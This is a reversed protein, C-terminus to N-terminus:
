PKETEGAEVILGPFMRVASMDNAIQIAGDLSADDVVGWTVNPYSESLYRVLPEIVIAGGRTIGGFCAVPVADSSAFHQSAATIATTAIGAAARDVIELAAPDGDRASAIVHPAFEAMVSTPAEDGYVAIVWEDVSGHVRLAREALDASGGRGELYSIASRLGESGIWFGSGHDGLLPGRGDIRSWAGAGDASLAVAGTGWILSVGARNGVTGVYGTVSDSAVVVRRAGTERVIASALYDNIPNDLVFGSLGVVCLHFPEETALAARAVEAVRRAVTDAAAEDGLKVVGEGIKADGVGDGTVAHSRMGTQGVDVAVFSRPPAIGSSSPTSEADTM